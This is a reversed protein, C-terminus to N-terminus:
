SKPTGKRASQKWAWAAAGVTLPIGAALGLASSPSTKRVEPIDGAMVQDIYDAFASVRTDFFYEGFSTDNPWTVDIGAQDPSLGTSSIGAVKGEIFAPGGSDGRSAGIERLGLGLNPLEFETGFADNNPESSDFDYVLQQGPEVYNELETDPENFVEGLAEYQNDGSRMVPLLDDQDPDVEGQFGTARTGFGVRTFIQGVENRDRYLEYRQAEDPAREALVVIALDGNSGELNQWGPYVFIHSVEVPLSGESLHFIATVRAPDPYHTPHGTQEVAEFCHAATLIHRGSMLLTGTCVEGGSLDLEVVGTYKGLEVLYSPDNPDQVPVSIAVLSAVLSFLSM